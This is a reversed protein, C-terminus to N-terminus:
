IFPTDLCLWSPSIPSSPNSHCVCCYSKWLQYSTVVELCSRDVHPRERVGLDCVAKCQCHLVKVVVLFIAFLNCLKQNVIKGVLIRSNGLKNQLIKCNSKWRGQWVQFRRIPTLFVVPAVHQHSLCLDYGPPVAQQHIGIDEPLPLPLYASTHATFRNYRGVQRGVWGGKSPNKNKALDKCEEEGQLTGYLHLACHCLPM